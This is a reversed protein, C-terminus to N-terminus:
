KQDIVIDPEVVTQLDFQSVMYFFDYLTSFFVVFSQSAM